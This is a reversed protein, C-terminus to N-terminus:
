LLWEGFYRKLMMGMVALLYLVFFVLLMGWNLTFCLKKRFEKKGEATLTKLSLRKYFIRGEPLLTKLQWLRLPTLNSVLILSPKLWRRLCLKLCPKRYKALSSVCIVDMFMTWNELGGVERTWRCGFNKWGGSRPRGIEISRGGGGKWIIVLRNFSFMIWPLSNYTILDKRWTPKRKWYWSM